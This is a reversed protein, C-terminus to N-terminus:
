GKGVGRATVSAGTARWMVIAVHSDLLSVIGCSVILVIEETLLM